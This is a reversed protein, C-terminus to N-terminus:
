LEPISIQNGALLQEFPDTMGNFQLVYWWYGPTDYFLNSILDPRQEFGAPVIGPRSHKLKLLQIFVDFNSALSTTVYKNKHLLVTYGFAYRSASM